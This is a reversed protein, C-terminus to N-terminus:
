LTLKATPLILKLYLYKVFVGFWRDLGLFNLGKSRNIGTLLSKPPWNDLLPDPLGFDKHLIDIINLYSRVSAAKLSLALFAAYQLLHDSQVPVSTYGM